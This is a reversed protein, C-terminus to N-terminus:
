AFYKKVADANVPRTFEEGDMITLILAGGSFARKVVYSGEYNHTWKGRSDPKFSLIKKLMLDGERFVRPRVKKDFAKKMRQQYLQGHCMTTLRQEEILNLQDYRTQCREAETLKAEMVVRLSPIEVEVPLVAEMGYILSFSTEGTSTHVSTRYGHLAFLLMEHWDKYTDCGRTSRPDPRHLEGSLSQIALWFGPSSVVSPLSRSSCLLNSQRLSDDTRAPNARLRAMVLSLHLLHSTFHPDSRVARIGLWPSSRLALQKLLAFCFNVLFQAVLLVEIRLCNRNTSNRREIGQFLRGLLRPKCKSKKMKQDLSSFIAQVIYGCSICYAIGLSRDIRIAEAKPHDPHLTISYWSCVFLKCESPIVILLALIFPLVPIVIAQVGCMWQPNNNERRKENKKAQVGSRDPYRFIPRFAMLVDVQDDSVEETQIGSVQGSHWLYMSRITPFKKPRFVPFKAQIGYTCRGSRRFSRRDSYRFSPRFAMLVDVQDDSVEETQIGSVQGSHWLYMSRITPFKKPRFVPFKAQVGSRDSYRRPRFVPFNAQIDYTCRGSRRFSRRDSFRFSPRFALDTQSGGRDSCRFIPRDNGNESSLFKSAVDSKQPIRSERSLFEDGSRNGGQQPFLVAAPFLAVRAPFFGRRVGDVRSVTSKVPSVSVSVRSPSYCDGSEVPSVDM